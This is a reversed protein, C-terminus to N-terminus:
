CVVILWWPSKREKKRIWLFAQNNKMTSSPVSVQEPGAALPLRSHFAKWYMLLIHFLLHGPKSQYPWTQVPCCIPFCYDERQAPVTPTKRPSKLIPGVFISPGVTRSFPASLQQYKTFTHGLLYCNGIQWLSKQRGRQSFVTHSISGKFYQEQHLTVCLQKQEWHLAWTFCWKKEKYSRRVATKKKTLLPSTQLLNQENM